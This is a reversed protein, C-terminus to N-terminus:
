EHGLRRFSMPSVGTWRKFQKSFYSADRYGFYKAVEDVTVLNDMLMLKAQRTILSSLYQRPSIGYVQRFVRNCHAPSYGLSSAIYEIGDRKNYDAAGTVSEKLYREMKNALAVTNENAEPHLAEAADGKSLVLGSLAALLQLSLNLTTLREKYIVSESEITSTIIKDLVSRMETAEISEQMLDDPTMNLLSRRLTLEDIDFHLSFYAMPKSTVSGHSEHPMGPHIFLIDGTNQLYSQGGVLMRQEGELVINLEFMPHTHSPYRWKANVKRWHAAYMQFGVQIDPAMRNEISNELGSPINKKMDSGRNMVPLIM